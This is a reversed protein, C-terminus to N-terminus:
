KNNNKFENIIELYDKLINEFEALKKRGDDKPKRSSLNLSEPPMKYLLFPKGKLSLSLRLPYKEILNGLPQLEFDELYMHILRDSQVIKNIGCLSATKRVLSVAILNGVERPMDGFRDILEDILDMSDEENELVSIKKYIDIRIEPSDIYDKPIFADIALDVTTDEKKKEITEGKLESVAENLLKIYMEYGVIDMHGHQEAGLLNGAGRIELDRMAIKFGSGFETYARIATLRKAAIETLERGKRYTLYAYAKRNSRGIRGRIQHLQSLGMKDANEIVLTNANPVDVGTEIITTCILVDIEGDIMQRWIESLEERNMKGHATAITVDPLRKKIEAARSELRDIDNLLYFVQGSRRIERRIAEVLISIDHEMVYTQVPFRDGPAEELLSMDRIGSLAMNLTRPIPTASLTLVDVNKSIEKLREKHTVGFRQEEDVVLFGLDFFEVDKQILRHTGVVIDVLGKKLNSLTTDQQKKTRFRSLMDIKVPFGRFRTLLTKYHQWALITTPVLIAAQKGDMVCKFIGRMAVETKGFGVDGCLLRDMPVASEMDKKIEESARLQADTERYEFADEFERQWQTDPSFAYGASNRRQSYLAILQKAIEQAGKKVRSKTKHWETGGLKTLKVGDGESKSGIYKSITDLNNCPVYLIDTGAYHLKIFDKTVGDIELTEIGDYVGIGHNVHVVYDGVTLDAYSLIKEKASKKAAGKRREHSKVYFSSSNTIFVFKSVNLEFGRQISVKKEGGWMAVTVAPRAVPIDDHPSLTVANINRDSLLETISSAEASNECNIVIRYGSEMYASLDDTLIDINEGLASVPKTSFSFLGGLRFENVSHSFNDVIVTKEGKIYDCFLQYSYLLEFDKPVSFGKGDAIIESVTQNLFNVASNLREKQVDGSILICLPNELYDLMAAKHEYILDIYFDHAFNFGNEVKDIEESIAQIDAGKRNQAKKLYELIRERAPPTIVIEGAPLVTVKELDEVGRQTLIDFRCIRDIQDGFFEIRVPNPSGPVFIDLIGGRQSFQGEGEVLECRKYGMETIKLCLETMSFELDLELNISNELLVEKPVTRQCAAETTTILIDYNGKAVDYLSFLRKYEFDHSSVEYSALAFDRAPFVLTRLNYAELEDYLMMADREDPVFIVTKKGMDSILTGCFASKAGDCLGTVLLPNEEKKLTEVLSIYEKERHFADTIFKM